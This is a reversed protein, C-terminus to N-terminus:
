EHAIRRGNLLILDQQSPPEYRTEIFDFMQRTVILAKGDKAMANRASVRRWREEAPIDLWHLAIEFGSERLRDAATTRQSNDTFGLDLIVPVGASTIQVTEQLILHRCREAREFVWVPDIPLPIDAGYLSVMWDDISFRVGHLQSALTKSFTTKGAGTSGSVLHVLAPRKPGTQNYDSPMESIRMSSIPKPKM